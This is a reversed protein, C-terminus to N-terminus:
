SNYLAGHSFTWEGRGVRLKGIERETTWHGTAASATEFCFRVTMEVCHRKWLPASDNLRLDVCFATWSAVLPEDQANATKKKGMFAKYWTPIRTEDDEKPTYRDNFSRYPRVDHDQHVLLNATM